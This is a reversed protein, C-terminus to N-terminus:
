PRPEIMKNTIQSYLIWGAHGDMYLINTGDSHPKYIRNRNDAASTYEYNGDSIWITEILRPFNVNTYKVPVTKAYPASNFTYSTGNWYMAMSQYYSMTYFRVGNFASGKQSRCRLVGTTRYNPYYTVHMYNHDGGSTSFISTIANDSIRPLSGTPSYGEWDSVYMMMYIGLQKLNSLCVAARARERAKSLTPLLMAALIAIIAVVVLLEILTFGSRSKLARAEKRKKEM